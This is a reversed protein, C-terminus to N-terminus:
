RVRQLMIAGGQHREAMKKEYSEMLNEVEPLLPNDDRSGSGLKYRDQASQM